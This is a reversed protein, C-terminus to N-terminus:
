SILAEVLKIHLKSSKFKKRMAVILAEEKIYEDKEKENGNEYLKLNCHEYKNINTGLEKIIDDAKIIDAVIEYENFSEKDMILIHYNGQTIFNYANIMMNIKDPMILEDDILLFKLDLRLGIDGKNIDENDENIDENIDGNIDIKIDENIEDLVNKLKTKINNELKNLSMEDFGINRRNGFIVINIVDEKNGWIIPFLMTSIIVLLVIGAIIHSKYYYFFNEANESNIGLRKLLSYFGINGGKKVKRSSKPMDSELINSELQFKDFNGSNLREVMQYYAENIKEMNLGPVESRLNERKLILHKKALIYYRREIVERSADEKVGLIEHAKYKEEHMNKGISWIFTM